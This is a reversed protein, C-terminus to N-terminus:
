WRVPLSALARATLGTKLEVEAPAVALRLTGPINRMLAYLAEQMELRALQAGLCHHIGYGFAMHPNHSRTLDVRDPRDFVETDHNASGLAALVADGARITVNGLRVHELAVRLQTGTLAFTNHRLLEEIASPVLDPQAYLRAMQEPLRLLTFLATSLTSATSMHGVTILILAFSVLETESLKDQEDRAAILVSLLDDAPHARKEAVLEVLFREISARAARVEDRSHSSLSFIVDTWGHLTGFDSYPVGLLEFIVKSPLAATFQGLLDASRPGSAVEIMLENALEEVRPRLAEIRRTTFAPAVLRRLRTHDPPDMGLITEPGPSTNGMRPGGPLEAAARSFRADALVKRVDTYRTVLWARDGSPLTVETVPQRARLRTFEAPLTFEPPQPFPFTLGTLETSM